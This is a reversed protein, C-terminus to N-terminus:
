LYRTLVIETLIVMQSWLMFPPWFIARLCSSYSKQPVAMPGLDVKYFDLPQNPLYKMPWRILAKKVCGFLGIVLSIDFHRTKKPYNM